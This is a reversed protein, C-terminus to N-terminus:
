GSALIGRCGFPFVQEPEACLGPAPIARASPPGWNRKMATVSGSSQRCIPPERLPPTNAIEKSTWGARELRKGADAVAARVEPV